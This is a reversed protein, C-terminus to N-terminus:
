DKTSGYRQTGFAEIRNQLLFAVVDRKDFRLSNGIKYFPLQRREVLRYVSARSIKLLQALEDRTLLETKPDPPIPMM